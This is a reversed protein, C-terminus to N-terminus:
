DMSVHVREITQSHNIMSSYVEPHMYGKSNTKKYELYIGLLVTAPDYILQIKLKQPIEMSNELTDTGTQMGVLLALPKQKRWM